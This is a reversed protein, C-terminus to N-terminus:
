NEGCVFDQTVLLSSNRCIGSLNASLFRPIKSMFEERWEASPSAEPDISIRNSGEQPATTISVAASDILTMGGMKQAASM